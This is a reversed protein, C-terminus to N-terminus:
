PQAKGYILGITPIVVIKKKVNLGSIDPMANIFYDDFNILETYRKKQFADPFNSIADDYGRRVLVLTVFVTNKHNLFSKKDKKFNEAVRKFLVLSDLIKTRNTFAVSDVRGQGNVSIALGFVFGKQFYEPSLEIFGNYARADLLLKEIKAHMDIKQAMANNFSLYLLLLLTSIFTKM